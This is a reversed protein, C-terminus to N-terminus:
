RRPFGVRRRRSASRRRALGFATLIPCSPANLLAPSRRAKEGSTSAVVGLAGLRVAAGFRPPVDSVGPRPDDAPPRLDIWDADVLPRWSVRFWGSGNLTNMGVERSSFLSLLIRGHEWSCVRHELAGDFQQHQFAQGTPRHVAVADRAPDLGGGVIHQADFFPGEVGGEVPHRLLPPDLAFPAGRVVVPAGLEVPERLGAFTLELFLRAAPDPQRLGHTAGDGGGIERGAVALGRHLLIGPLFHVVFELEVDFLPRAVVDRTPHTRSAARSAAVCRKPSVARTRSAQVDTSTASRLASSRRVRILTDESSTFSPRRM